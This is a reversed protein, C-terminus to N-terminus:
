QIFIKIEGDSDNAAFIHKYCFGANEAILNIDNDSLPFGAVNRLTQWDFSDCEYTEICYQWALEQCFNDQYSISLIHRLNQSNEIIETWYSNASELALRLDYQDINTFIGDEFTEIECDGDENTENFYHTCLHHISEEVTYLFVQKNQELIEM